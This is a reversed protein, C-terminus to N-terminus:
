RGARNRRASERGAILSADAGSRPTESGTTRGRAIQSPRFSPIPIPKSVPHVPDPGSM